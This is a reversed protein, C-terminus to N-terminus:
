LIVGDKFISIERFGNRENQTKEVGSALHVIVELLEAHLEDM